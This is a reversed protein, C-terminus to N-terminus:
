LLPLLSSKSYDDSEMYKDSYMYVYTDDDDTDAYRYKDTDVYRYEYMDDDDKDTYRCKEVVGGTGGSGAVGRAGEMRDTKNLLHKYWHIAGFITGVVILTIGIISLLRDDQFTLYCSNHYYPKIWFTSGNLPRYNVTVSCNGLQYSLDVHYCSADHCIVPKAGYYCCKERYAKTSVNVVEAIYYKGFCNGFSPSCGCLLIISGILLTGAGFVLYRNHSSM